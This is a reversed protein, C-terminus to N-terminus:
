RSIQFRENKRAEEYLKYKEKDTGNILIDRHHEWIPLIHFLPAYLELDDLPIDNMMLRKAKHWLDSVYSCYRQECGAEAMAAKFGDPSDEILTFFPKRM